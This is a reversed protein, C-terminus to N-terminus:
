AFAEEFTRQRPQPSAPVLFDALRGSIPDHGQYAVEILGAELLSLVAPTVSSIRIRTAVEIQRRTMPKASQFLCLMIRKRLQGTLGSLVSEEYSRVSAYRVTM